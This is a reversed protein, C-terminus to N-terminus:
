ATSGFENM